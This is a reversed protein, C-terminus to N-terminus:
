RPEFWALKHHLKVVDGIIILSQLTVEANAVIEPLTTLTGVLVKQDATTAKQVLAAPKDAPLGHKILENCIIPLARLGM